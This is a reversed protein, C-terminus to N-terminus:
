LEFGSSAVTYYLDYNVLLTCRYVRQCSEWVDPATGTETMIRSMSELYRSFPLVPWPTQTVPQPTLSALYELNAVAMIKLGITGNITGNGREHYFSKYNIM